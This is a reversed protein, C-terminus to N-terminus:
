CLNLSLFVAATVVSIPGSWDAGMDGAGRAAATGLGGGAPARWLGAWNKSLRVPVASSVGLCESGSVGGCESCPKSISTRGASALEPGLELSSCRLPPHPQNQAAEVCLLAVRCRM